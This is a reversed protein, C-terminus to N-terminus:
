DRDVRKRLEEIQEQQHRIVKSLEQLNRELNHIAEVIEEPRPPGPRGADRDGGQEHRRRIAEEMKDAASRYRRADEPMGARELNEAAERLHHMKQMEREVQEEHAARDRENDRQQDRANPGQHHDKEVAVPRRPRPQDRKEPKRTEASEDATLISLPSSLFLLLCGSVAILTSPLKM